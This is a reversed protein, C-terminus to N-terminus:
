CSDPICWPLALYSKDGIIFEHEPFYQIGHNNIPHYIDSNKFIRSDGVSDPFGIFVDTFHLFPDAIAQLTFAYNCKRTIYSQPDDKPVKFPIYTGDVARFVDSLKASTYFKRKIDLLRGKLGLFLKQHLHM